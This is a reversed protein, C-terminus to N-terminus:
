AMTNESLRCRSGNQVFYVRTHTHTYFVEFSSTETGHRRSWATLPTNTRARWGLPFSELGHPSSSWGKLWGQWPGPCLRHFKFKKYVFLKSCTDASASIDHVFSFSSAFVNFIHSDILSKPFKRVQDSINRKYCCRDRRGKAEEAQPDSGWLREEDGLYIKQAAICCIYM